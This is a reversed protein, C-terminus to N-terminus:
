DALHNSSGDGDESIILSECYRTFTHDKMDYGAEVARDWCVQYGDEVAKLAEERCRSLDAQAKGLSEELGRKEDRLSNLVREHEAKIAAAITTNEAEIKQYSTILDNLLEKDTVLAANKMKLKTVEASLREEVEASRRKAVEHDRRIRAMEETKDM